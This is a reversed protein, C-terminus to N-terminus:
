FISVEFIKWAKLMKNGSRFLNFIALNSYNFLTPSMFSYFLFVVNMWEHTYKNVLCILEVM